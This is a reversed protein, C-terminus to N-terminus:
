LNDDTRPYKERIQTIRADLERQHTDDGQRAEYAAELQERIGPYEAKRLASYDGTASKGLKEKAAELQEPTPRPTSALWDALYPTKDTGEEEITYDVGAHVGPQLLHIARCLVRARKNHRIVSQQHAVEKIQTHMKRTNNWIIFGWLLVALLIILLVNLSTSDLAM